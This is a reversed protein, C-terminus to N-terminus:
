LAGGHAKITDILASSAIDYLQTEGGKTGVAIHRDDPLFTSCLADGCDLTRICSTTKLNWVKLSGHSASALLQGDSSLTCADTHHGPIDVSFHRTAEPTTKEKKTSQPPSPVRFVPEENVFSFSRIKSSAGIVLYPTFLDELAIEEADEIDGDKAGGDGNEKGKKGKGKRKAKERDRKQRRVQKQASWIRNGLRALDFIKDRPAKGLESNVSQVHVKSTLGLLGEIGKFMQSFKDTQAVMCTGHVHVYDYD